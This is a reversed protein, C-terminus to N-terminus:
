IHPSIYTILAAHWEPTQTSLEAKVFVVAHVIYVFSIKGDLRNWTNNSNNKFRNCISLKKEYSSLITGCYWMSLQGPHSNVYSSGLVLRAWQPTVEKTLVLGNHRPSATTSRRVWSQFTVPKVGPQPVILDVLDVRGEMGGLYTFWTGAQMATTLIPHIWRHRTAPLVTHDWIALSM